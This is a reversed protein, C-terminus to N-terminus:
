LCLNKLEVGEKKRHLKILVAPVPATHPPSATSKGPALIQTNASIKCIHWCKCKYKEELHGKCLSLLGIKMSLVRIKGSRGRHPGYGCNYVVYKYLFQFINANNYAEPHDQQWISWAWMRTMFMSFGTSVCTLASHCMSLTKTSRSWAM